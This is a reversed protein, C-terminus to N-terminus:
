CKKGGKQAMKAWISTNKKKDSAPQRTAPKENTMNAFSRQTAM